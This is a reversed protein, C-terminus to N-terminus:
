RPWGIASTSCTAPARSAPAARGAVKARGRGEVASGHGNAAAPTLGEACPSSRGVLEPPRWMAAVEESPAAPAVPWPPVATSGTPPPPTSHPPAKDVLPRRAAPAIAVRATSRPRAAAAAGAAGLDASAAGAASRAGFAGLGAPSRGGSLIASVREAAIVLPPTAALVATGADDVATAAPADIVAVAAACFAAPDEEATSGRASAREASAAASASASAARWRARTAREVNM